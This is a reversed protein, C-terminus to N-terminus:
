VYVKIEIDVMRLESLDIKIPANKDYYEQLVELTATDPYIHPTTSTGIEGGLWDAIIAFENDSKFVLTKAKVIKFDM